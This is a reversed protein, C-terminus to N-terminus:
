PQPVIRSFTRQDKSSGSKQQKWTNFHQPTAPAHHSRRILRIDTKNHSNNSFIKVKITGSTFFGFSLMRTSTRQPRSTGPTTRKWWRSEAVPGRERRGETWRGNTRVGDVTRNEVVTAGQWGFWGSRHTLLIKTNPGFFENFILKFHRKLQM